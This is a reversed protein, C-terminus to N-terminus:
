PVRYPLYSLLWAALSGLCYPAKMDRSFMLELSCEHLFQWECSIQRCHSDSHSCNGHGFGVAYQKQQGLLISTVVVNDARCWGNGECLTSFNKL